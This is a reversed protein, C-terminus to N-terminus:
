WQLHIPRGERAAEYATLAVRFSKRAEQISAASQRDNEVCDILHDLPFPSPPGFPEGAEREFVWGPAGAALVARGPVRLGEDIIEGRSGIVELRLVCNQKPSPGTPRPSNITWAAELTAIIGNAFTLIAMGWDEVKIERHVLNAMKAEVQIVESGALWRLQDLWYIGEDIFAGGPTQRPDAFWGPIGSHYWDEAISWRATQHMLIIKGIEGADIRAKLEGSRLRKTGQFAVCKVGSREVEEVMQDAQEMTMAMPKGLVIHKGARAALITCDAMESVPTALHVLDIEERRLLEGYDSYGSVHFSGTFDALQASNHWAVAVLEAKPYEQLARALNYASYWHGLGLIAVRWKRAM